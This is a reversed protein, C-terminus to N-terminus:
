KDTPRANLRLANTKRWKVAIIAALRDMRDSYDSLEYASRAHACDDSSAAQTLSGVASAAPRSTTLEVQRNVVLYWVVVRGGSTVHKERSDCPM